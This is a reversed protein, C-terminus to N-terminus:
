KKSKKRIREALSKIELTTYAEITDRAEKIAIDLNKEDNMVESSIELLPMYLSEPEGKLTLGFAQEPKEYKRWISRIAKWYESTKSLYNEAIETDFDNFKRYTNLGNERVLVQNKKGLILKSNDEEHVWGWETIAHRNVADITHYDERKTMDRRPLPRWEPSPNWESIGGKHNWIGVAGYRPSDDVQYVTQSWSGSQESEPVKRMRWANGGIFVLVNKPEYKWDQRWHKIAFKQGGGEAVLVHQLSIYDITDEVIKIVEYAGSKSPKKLKYDSLFSVTETFNFEVKYNGSMNLIANRDSQFKMIEDQSDLGDISFNETNSACSCFILASYIAIFPKFKKINIM